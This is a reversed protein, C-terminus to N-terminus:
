WPTEMLSVIQQALQDIIRQQTTALSQGAEPILFSPQDVTAISTPLPITRAQLQTGRRDTWVVEVSYTLNINRPESTPAVLVTGKYESIIRGTLTSDAGVADVVKFPTKLEIDRVVAETLREGLNRRITNSEFMPVHVTRIEAPYLTANGFRYACGSLWAAAISAAGVMLGRRGVTSRVPRCAAGLSSGM